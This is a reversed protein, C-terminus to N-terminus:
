RPQDHRDRTRLSVEMTGPGVSVGHRNETRLGIELLGLPGERWKRRVEGHVTLTDGPTNFANMRFNRLNRITGRDGIFERVAREWMGQLFMNNAYIDQAGSARAVDPNHHIPNFDRNAGAAVVLRHVTLPFRIAPLAEGESCDEWYRIATM